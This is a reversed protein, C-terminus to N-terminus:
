DRVNAFLEDVTRTIEPSVPCRLTDGRLLRAVEVYRGARHEYQTVMRTDPDVIWYYLM